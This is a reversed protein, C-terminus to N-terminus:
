HCNDPTKFLSAAWSTIEPYDETNLIFEQGRGVTRLSYGADRQQWRKQDVHYTMTHKDKARFSNPLWWLSRNSQCKDTLVLSSDYRRFVGGGPIKDEIGPLSMREQAVYITNSEYGRWRAYSNALHPHYDLWPYKELIASPTNGIPIIEGIQLWGFLVHLDREGSIYQWDSAVRKVRRFWGFFLLLDGCGVDNNALHTQAGAVQGLSARWGVTKRQIASERLDPDLHVSNSRLVTKGTLSEVLAGLHIGDQDIEDYCVPLNPGEPDNRGEPIPISVM